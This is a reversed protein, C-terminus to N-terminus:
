LRRHIGIRHRAILATQTFFLLIWCTFVLGHVQVLPTLPAGGFYGKLYYTPAFGVFVTLIIAISMGTYFLRHNRGVSGHVVAATMAGRKSRKSCVRIM